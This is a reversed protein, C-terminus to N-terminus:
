LCVPCNGFTPFDYIETKPRLSFLKCCANAAKLAELAPQTMRAPSEYPLRSVGM